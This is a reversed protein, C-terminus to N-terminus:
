RPLHTVTQVLALLGAIEIIGFVLMLCSAIIQIWAVVLWFRALFHIDQAARLTLGYAYQPNAFGAVQFPGREGGTPPAWGGHALSPAPNWRTGDWVHGNLM